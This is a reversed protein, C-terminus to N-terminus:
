ACTMAQRNTVVQQSNCALEEPERQESIDGEDVEGEKTLGTATM